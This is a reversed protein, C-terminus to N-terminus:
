RIASLSRAVRRGACPHQVFLGHGSPCLVGIGNLRYAGTLKLRKNPPAAVASRLDERGGLMAAGGVRRTCDPVLSTRAGQELNRHCGCARPRRRPIRSNFRAPPAQEAGVPGHAVGVSIVIRYSTALLALADSIPENIPPFVHALHLVLDVLTTVVISVLVGAVVAWISQKTM